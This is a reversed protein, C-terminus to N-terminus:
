FLNVENKNIHYDIDGFYSKKISAEDMLPATVTYKMFMQKESM